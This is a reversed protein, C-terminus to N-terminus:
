NVLRIYEKGSGIKTGVMIQGTRNDTEKRVVRQLMGSVEIRDGTRFLGGFAGDYVLIRQVTEGSFEIPEIEYLAPHFISYDDSTISVKLTVPKSSLTLYSESSHVIPTETTLLVPTIGICRDGICIAKRREFILQLDSYPLTRIRQHIREIAYKWETQPRLRIRSKEGDLIEYNRQLIWSQDYGYINMNIDSHTTDHGKWLISGAIGLADMPIRFEDHLTEAVIKTTEELEDKPEELIEVLRKEPQFYNKIVNYPPEVLSTKFHTDEITYSSPLLSAGSIASDVDGWFIRRYKINSKTWQGDKAPIYKLYSIVRNTPQIYGLTVFLRGDMDEFIDRDRFQDPINTTNSISM